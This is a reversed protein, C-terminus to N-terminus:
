AAPPDNSQNVPNGDADCANPQPRSDGPDLIEGIDDEHVGLLRFCRTAQKVLQDNIALREKETVKALVEPHERLYPSINELCRILIENALEKASCKEGEDNIIM